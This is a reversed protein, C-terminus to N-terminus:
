DKNIHQLTSLVLHHQTETEQDTKRTEPGYKLKENYGSNRLCEEHHNAFQDFIKDLASLMSKHKEVSQPLAKIIFPTIQNQMYSIQRRTKKVTNPIPTKLNLTVALYNIIKLNCEVISNLGKNELTEQFHKKNERSATWRNKFIPM